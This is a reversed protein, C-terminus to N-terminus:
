FVGKELECVRWPEWKGLLMLGAGQGSGDGLKRGGWGKGAKVVAGGWTWGGSNKISGRNPVSKEAGM